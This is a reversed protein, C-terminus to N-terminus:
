GTFSVNIAEPPFKPSTQRPSKLSRLRVTLLLPVQSRVIDFMPDLEPSKRVGEVRVKGVTTACPTESCSGMRNSGVVRPDCEPVMETVVSAEGPRLFTLTEPLVGGPSTRTVPDVSKPWTHPPACGSFVIETHLTPFHLRCTTDAANSGAQASKVNIL